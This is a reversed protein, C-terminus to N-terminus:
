PTRPTWQMPDTGEGLMAYLGHQQHIEPFLEELKSIVEEAELEKGHLSCLLWQM